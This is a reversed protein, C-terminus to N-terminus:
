KALGYVGREFRRVLGRVELLMLAAMVQATEMGTEAVIEDVTKNGGQLAQYVAAQDPPLDPRAASAAAPASVVEVLSLGLGEIVDSATQVLGAGDRILENCGQSEARTVDGPVAFVERGQEAALRATILAGSGRPAEVVVVALSLGSIIRNRQPFRERTPEAGLFFESLVAGSAAIQERLEAHQRPYTVDPGSGLVAITRGGAELAGRHAEADIGLAMGSVVCLGRAALDYALRRAVQRGYPTCKRTGVIAICDEERLEGQVYLLPPPDPIERLLRPYQEATIPLLWAGIKELAALAADVDVQQQAERLKRVHVAAIGEVAQLEDDPAEFIASASGFAELLKLQRQPALGSANLWLWAAKENDQLEPRPPNQAM